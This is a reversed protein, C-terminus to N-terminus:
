LGQFSVLEVGTRHLLQRVEPSTLAELEIQRQRKLRTPAGELEDDYLGPHCMLETLGPKLRQLAALLSDRTM